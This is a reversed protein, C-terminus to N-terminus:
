RGIHDWSGEERAVPLTKQAATGKICVSIGKVYTTIIVHKYAMSVWEYKLCHKSFFFLKLVMGIPFFISLLLFYNDNGTM